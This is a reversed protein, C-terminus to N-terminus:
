KSLNMIDRIVKTVRIKPLNINKSSTSYIKNNMHTRKIHFVKTNAENTCAQKKNSPILEGVKRDWPSWKLKSQTKGDIIWYCSHSPMVVFLSSNIIRTKFHGLLWPSNVTCDNDRYIIWKIRGNTSKISNTPSGDNQYIDLGSLFVPFSSTNKVPFPLVHAM